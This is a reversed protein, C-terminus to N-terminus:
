NEHYDLHKQLLHWYFDLSALIPKVGGKKIFTHLSSLPVWKLDSVESDNFHFDTPQGTYDYLYVSHIAHSGPFKYSFVFRLKKPDLHAGIEEHAERLAAQSRSEGLNIHGAASIDWTNPAYTVTASRHQFLLERGTKGDRYLWIHVTDCIASPHTTEFHSKPHGTGQIPEGNPHYEQWLEDSHSM